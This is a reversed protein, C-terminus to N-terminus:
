LGPGSTHAPLCLLPVSVLEALATYLCSLPLVTLRLPSLFPVSSLTVMAVPAVCLTNKRGCWVMYWFCIPLEFGFCSEQKSNICASGLFHSFGVVDPNPRELSAAPPDAGLIQSHYSFPVREGSLDQKSNPETPAMTHGTEKWQLM